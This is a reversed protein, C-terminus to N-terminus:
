APNIGLRVTHSRHEIDLITLRYWRGSRGRFMKSRGTKLDRIKLLRHGGEYLDIDADLEDDTDRLLLFLEEVVEAQPKYRRDRKSLTCLQLYKAEEPIAKPKSKRPKEKPPVPQIKKSAPNKKEPMSQQQSVPVKIEATPKNKTKPLPPLNSAPTKKLGDAPKGWRHEVPAKQIPARQAPKSAKPKAVVVPTDIATKTKPTSEKPTSSKLPASPHKPIGQDPPSLKPTGAEAIPEAIPVPKPIPAQKSKPPVPRKAETRPKPKPKPAPKPKEIKLPEKQSRNARTSEAKVPRKDLPNPPVLSRTTARAVQLPPPEPEPMAKKSKDPVHTKIKPASMPTPVHQRKPKVKHAITPEPEPSREPKKAVPPTTRGHRSPASKAKVSPRAFPSAMPEPQHSESREIFPWYASVKPTAHKTNPASAPGIPKPMPDPDVTSPSKSVSKPTAEPVAESASHKQDLPTKKLNASTMKSQKELPVVPRRPATVDPKPKALAIKEEKRDPQVPKAKAIPPADHKEGNTSVPDKLAVTATPTAFNPKPDSPKARALSRRGYRIWHYRAPGIEKKHETKLKRNLRLAAQHAPLIDLCRMTFCWADGFRGEAAASRSKSDWYTAATPAVRKIAGAIEQSGPQQTAARYYYEYATHAYGRREAERGLRYAHNDVCGAPAVIAVLSTMSLLILVNRSV